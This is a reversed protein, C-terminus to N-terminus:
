EKPQANIVYQVPAPAEARRAVATAAQSWTSLSRECLERWAKADFLQMFKLNGVIVVQRDIGCLETMMPSLKVRNQKDLTVSEALSTAMNLIMREQDVQDDLRSIREIEERFRSAPMLKISRDPTITLGLRDSEKPELARLVSMFRAPIGVRGKQDVTMQESGLFVQDMTAGQEGPRYEPGNGGGFVVKGCLGKGPCCWIEVKGCQKDVFFAMRGIFFAISM